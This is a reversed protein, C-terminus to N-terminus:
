QHHSWGAATRARLAAEIRELAHEVTEQDLQASPEAAGARPQDPDRDPARNTHPVAAQAVREIGPRLERLEAVRIALDPRSEVDLEGLATAYARELEIAALGLRGQDFDQRARLTLEECILAAERAGVLIALHEEPRLAAVRRRRGPKPPPLERAHLWQGYAVQEGEGWGARVVLAQIPVIERAHPNASAIRHAFLLRNLVTAAADTEHEDDLESLWAQAQREASLPVPDIVTARGISVPTPAPEPDAQPRRAGIRGRRPQLASRGAGLTNLVVVNEPKGEVPDRLLYRGDAPGLEWPFEMQVFLFLPEAM